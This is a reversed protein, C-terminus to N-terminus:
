QEPVFPESIVLLLSFHYSFKKFMQFGRENLSFRFFFGQIFIVNFNVYISNQRM